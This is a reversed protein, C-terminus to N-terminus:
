ALKLPLDRLRQGTAAFIANAVAPAIPPLGPEGVGSPHNDSDALFVEIDPTEHMRLAEYDHFNSQQVAGDQLSIKGKLAATLGFVIGSEMQMIVIDPNVVVGCDVACFVKHVKIQGNNVSVNAVQAVASGFSEHIAVGQFQGEPPNGWDAMETVKKLLPVLRSDPNLYSARFAVPDQKTEAALEDVFGEQFFANFSHGVSRWYGIPATIKQQVYHSRTYPYDYPAAIMGETAQQDYPAALKGVKGHIGNPLWEALLTNTVLPVFQGLISPAVLKNQVSTVAGDAITARMDILASPRYNDHRVDDERSWVLQVPQGLEQAVRAAEVLYDPVVRRGFGGGLMANHIVVQEKKYGVADAVAAIAIEPSQTGTWLEVKGDTVAALANMPEMTAHALYPVTYRVAYEDGVAAESDGIEEVKRGKENAALQKKDELLDDSSMGALPGKHWEVSVKHAAQRAQWYSNAVVAVAGDVEFVSHVGPMALADVANYTKLKGGFHPSRIMVATLAGALTADIGFEARGLVKDRADLRQQHVGIYKFDARQKLPPNEPPTLTRAVPVLEAFSIRRGAAIVDGNEVLLGAEAINLKQAAASKLMAAVTAAAVRLQNYATTMSTSGGTLMVYLLPDRFEIHSQAHEIHLDSPDMGLEEAVLTAMGTYVGQGMEAKHLQLIVRGETNVQLFANPQLDEANAHLYPRKACGQLNFGIFLGGSVVASNKLFSRRSVNM